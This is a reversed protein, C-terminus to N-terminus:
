AMAIEGLPGPSGQLTLLILHPRAVRSIATAKGNVGDGLLMVM